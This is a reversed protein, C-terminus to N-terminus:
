YKVSRANLKTSLCEFELLLKNQLTFSMNQKYKTKVLDM